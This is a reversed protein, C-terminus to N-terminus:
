FRRSFGVFLANKAYDHLVINSRSRTHSFGVVPTGLPTDMRSFAIAASASIVTDNRDLGFVPNPGDARTKGVSAGLELGYDPTMQTTYSAMLRTHRETRWDPARESIAHSVGLRLWAANSMQHIWAAQAYIRRGSDLGDLDTFRGWSAAMEVGDRPSIQGAMRGELANTRGKLGGDGVEFRVVPGVRASWRQGAWDLAVGPALRLASDDRDNVAVIGVGMSPVVALRHTLGISYGLHANAEIGYRKQARSDEGLEFEFPGLFISRASTANNYNGDAILRVDLAREWTNPRTPCLDRQAQAVATQTSPSADLTLARRFDRAAAGCRGMEALAVGREFRYGADQPHAATLADLADVAAATQGSIRLDRAQTLADQATSALPLSVLAALLCARKLISTIM